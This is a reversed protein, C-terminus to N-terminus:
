PVFLLGGDKWWTSSCIWTLILSWLSFLPHGWSVRATIKLRLCKPDSRCLRSKLPVNRSDLLDSGYLFTSFLEFAPLRKFNSCNNFHPKSLWSVATPFPFTHQPPPSLFDTSTHCLPRQVRYVTWDLLTERLFILSIYFDICFTRIKFFQDTFPSQPLHKIQRLDGSRRHGWVGGGGGVCQTCTHLISIWLPIPTLPPPALRLSFSLPTITWLSPWFYWCSQWYVRNFMLLSSM